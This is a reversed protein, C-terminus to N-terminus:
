EAWGGFGFYYKVNSVKDTPIALIMHITTNPMYPLDTTFGIGTGVGVKFDSSQKKFGPITLSGVVKGADCQALLAIKRMSFYPVSLQVRPFPSIEFLNQFYVARRGWLEDNEYGILNSRGGLFYLPSNQPTLNGRFNAIGRYTVAEGLTHTYKTLLEVLFYNYQGQFIKYSRELSIYALSKEEKQSQYLYYLKLSRDHASVIKTGMRRNPSWEREIKFELGISSNDNFQHQVFPTVAQKRRWVGTSDSFVERFYLNDDVSIGPNIAYKIFAHRMGFGMDQRRYDYDAAVSSRLINFEKQFLAHFEFTPFYLAYKNGPTFVIRNIKIMVPGTTDDQALSYRGFTTLTLLVILVLIKKM